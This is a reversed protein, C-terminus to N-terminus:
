GDVADRSLRERLQLHLSEPLRREYLTRIIEENSKKYKKHFQIYDRWVDIDQPFQDLFNTYVKEWNQYDDTFELYELKLMARHVNKSPLKKRMFLDYANRCKEVGCNVYLWRIYKVVVAVAIQPDEMAQLYLNKIYDHQELQECYSLFMLWIDLSDKGLAAVAREFITRIDSFIPNDTNIIFKLYAKWLRISQPYVDLALFM